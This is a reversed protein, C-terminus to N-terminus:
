GIRNVTSEILVVTAGGLRGLSRPVCLPCLFVAEPWTYFVHPNPCWVYDHMAEDRGRLSSESGM